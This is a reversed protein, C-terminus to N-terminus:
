DNKEKNLHQLDNNLYYYDELNFNPILELVRKLLDDNSINNNILHILKDRHAIKNILLAKIKIIPYNNEEYYLKGYKEDFHINGLFNKDVKFIVDKNNFINSSNVEMILIM